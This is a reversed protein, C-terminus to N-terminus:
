NLKDPSVDITDMVLENLSSRIAQQNFPRNDPTSNELIVAILKRTLTMAAALMEGATTGEAATEMGSTAAQVLRNVVAPRSKVPVATM